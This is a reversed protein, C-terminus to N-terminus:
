VAPNRFRNILIEYKVGQTDRGIPVIFLLQEGFREHSIEYTNQPLVPQLPGLLMLSLVESVPRTSGPDENQSTAQKVEVLALEVSGSNGLKINFKTNLAELCSAYTLNDLSSESM